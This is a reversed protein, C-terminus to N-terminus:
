RWSVQDCQGLGNVGSGSRPRRQKEPNNDWGSAGILIARSGFKMTALLSMLNPKIGPRLCRCSAGSGGDATPLWSRRRPLSKCSM